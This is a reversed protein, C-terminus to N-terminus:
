FAKPESLDAKGEGSLIRNKLKVTIGKPATIKLKDLYYLHHLYEVENSSSVVLTGGYQRAKFGLGWENAPTERWNPDTPHYGEAGGSPLGCVRFKSVRAATSIQAHEANRARLLVTKANGVEFEACVESSAFSAQSVCVALFITIRSCRM